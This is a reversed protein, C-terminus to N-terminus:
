SMEWGRQMKLTPTCTARAWVLTLIFTMDLRTWLPYSLLGEKNRRDRMEQRSNGHKHRPFYQSVCRLHQLSDLDSGSAVTSLFVNEGGLEVWM